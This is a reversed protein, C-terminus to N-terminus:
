DHSLTKNHYLKSNAMHSFNLSTDNSNSLLIKLNLCNIKLSNTNKSASTRKDSEFVLHCSNSRKSKEKPQYSPISSPELNYFQTTNFVLHCGNSPKYKDKPNLCPLTSCLEHIQIISYELNTM